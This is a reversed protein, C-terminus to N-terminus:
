SGTTLELLTISQAPLELPQGNEWDITGLNEAQHAEDFRWLVPSNTKFNDITLSPVATEMGRNVLILTLV